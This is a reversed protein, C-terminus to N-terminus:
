DNMKANGKIRPVCRTCEGAGIEQIKRSGLNCRLATRNSKRRCAHLRTLPRHTERRWGLDKGLTHFPQLTRGPAPLAKHSGSGSPPLRNRGQHRGEAQASPVSFLEWVCCSSIHLERIGSHACTLVSRVCVVDLPRGLFVRERFRQVQLSGSRSDDNRKEERFDLDNRRKERM